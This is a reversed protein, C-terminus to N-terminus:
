IEDRTHMVSPDFYFRSTDTLGHRNKAWILEADTASVEGDLIQDDDAHMYPRYMFCVFDAHAAVMGGGRLHSLRPRRDDMADIAKTTHALVIVAVDLDKAISEKLFRAKAEDEDYANDFRRDSDFYRMHDIVVLNVKHRRIAEVVMARLQAARIMSTFNFHLPIDKRSGWNKIISAMDDDTATGDRLKAGDVHGESQGFRDGAPDKGMELSLIFAGLRKDTPKKMQRDAFLRTACFSVGSKGCGPEGGLVLLEGGKLGHIRDDLFKLGFFVGTEIGAARDARLQKQRGVFERGLDGYSIIENSLSTSTAVQMARQSTEAAIVEPSNEEAGVQATIDASLELLARRDSDRKVIKAHAVAEQPQGRGALARVRTVVEDKEVMWTETLKKGASEVISLPDSGTDSYHAAVITEFLIRYPRVYFHEAQLLTGVVEGIVRPRALM